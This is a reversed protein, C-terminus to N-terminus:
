CLDLFFLHELVRSCAVVRSFSHKVRKSWQKRFGQLLQLRLSDERADCGQLGPMKVRFSSMDSM